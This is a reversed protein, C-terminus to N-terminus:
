SLAVTSITGKTSDTYTILVTRLTTGASGGSKFVYTDTTTATTLAVYDWNPPVASNLLNVRVANNPQDFSGSLVQGADLRGNSFPNIAM